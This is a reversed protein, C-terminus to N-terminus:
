PQLRRRWAKLRRTELYGGFGGPLFLAAAVLICGFLVLRLEPSFRLLEPVVTFIVAALIVTWFNGAGGIIVIILLMEVYYADFISPDVIGLHLVYLGGTMGTVIASVTFAFLQYSKTKIGQSRALQENQKIARLIRGVPSRVIIFISGIAILAFALVIGYFVRPDHGDLRLREDWYLSPVPLGPIGLPGRTVEIWNRSLLTVLLTFALTVIVFSARSVRLAPVGVIVATIGAVLGGFLFCLWPSLSFDMAAIASAYAGIGWFGIQAFSLLGAYGFILNLATAIVAFSVALTAVNYGYSTGLFFPFLALVIAVAAPIPLNQATRVPLPRQELSHSESM